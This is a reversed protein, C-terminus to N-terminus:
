ALLPELKRQIPEGTIYAEREGAYIDIESRVGFSPLYVGPEITFATRPILRRDDKTEFHDINAGNGHVEGGLSHGTRHIFYEGYGKSEIFDRAADDVQWGRVERGGNLADLAVSAAADRAGSVVEFVKRNEEPVKSDLFSTWTIDAYIAGPENKKCWLDILFHDGRRIPLASGPEPSYHPNGSNKNVAVIPPHDCIFGRSEFHGVMFQQIEYENVPVGDLIRRRVESFTLDVTERLLKAAELHSQLQKETMTAEFTQVLDASSVVEVGRRRVQEMTGADVRSVYPIANGPSYQMAIRRVGKLAADLRAELESHGAYPCLAGPAPELSDLEIRHVIKSPEGTAPILYFWRRSAMRDDPLGLIRYAIPDSRHFDYFLWGDLGFSRLAEQVAPVDLSTPM